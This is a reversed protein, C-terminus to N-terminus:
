HTSPGDRLDSAIINLVPASSARASYHIFPRMTSFMLQQGGLVVFLARGREQAGLKSHSSLSGSNFVSIRSATWSIDRARLLEFAADWLRAFLFTGRFAPDLYVDFDWAVRDAPLLVFHCRVEDERYMHFQLWLYGVFQNKLFAGLCRSGQAYRAALAAAPRPGTQHAPDTSELERIEFKRGRHPPLLASKPVPQLEVQYYHVRVRGGSTRAFLRDLAYVCTAFIGWNRAAEFVADLLSTRKAASHSKILVGSEQDRSHLRESRPQETM